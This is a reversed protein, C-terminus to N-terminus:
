CPKRGAALEEEVLAVLEENQFPKQFFRVDKLQRSEEPQEPSGSLLVLRVEPAQRRIRDCAELGGMGPMFLDMFVVRFTEGSGLFRALAEEGDAAESIDYGEAELVARIIFRVMEDDDVVLIRPKEQDCTM